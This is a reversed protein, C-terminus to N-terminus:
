GFRRSLKALLTGVLGLNVLLAPYGLTLALGLAEHFRWGTLGMIAVTGLGAEIGTVIQAVLWTLASLTIVKGTIRPLTLMRPHALTSM